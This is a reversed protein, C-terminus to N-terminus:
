RLNRKKDDYTVKILFIIPPIRNGGIKPRGLM